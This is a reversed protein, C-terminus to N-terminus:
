FHDPLEEYVRGSGGETEQFLSQQMERIIYDQAERINDASSPRQQQVFRRNSEDDRKKQMTLWRNVMSDVNRIRQGASTLWGQANYYDYFVKAEDASMGKSMCVELVKEWEPPEPENKKKQKPPVMAMDKESFLMPQGDRDKAMRKPKPVVKPQQPPVQVVVKQVPLIEPCDFIYVPQRRANGDEFVILGSDVLRKRAARLTKINMSLLDCLVENPVGHRSPFGAERWENLLALGLAIQTTDLKLSKVKQWFEGIRDEYSM